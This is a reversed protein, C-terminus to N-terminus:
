SAAADPAQRGNVPPATPWGITQAPDAFVRLATRILKGAHVGDILRHDLTASVPLMPRIVIQDDVVVPQKKIEGVVIVTPVRSYPVLPAYGIDVGFMGVSTVMASGFADKPLGVASLDINLTYLLFSTFNLFFRTMFWPLFKFADKSKKMAPDQNARIKKALEQLEQSVEVLDKREMDRIVVGSLDAKGQEDYTLVQLFVDINRRQYIRGWAMYSNLEPLEKMALAVAKAMLHTVTVKVGWRERVEDLYPLARSMDIEVTGYINAATPQTWTGVTIKRWASM